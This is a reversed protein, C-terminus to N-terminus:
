QVPRVALVKLEMPNAKDNLTADIEVLTEPAVQPADPGGPVLVFKDKGAQFYRKGDQEQVRGRARIQFVAIPVEVRALIKRIEAPQFVADAKFSVMVAENPLSIVVDDVGAMKRLDAEAVAACTGCSIGPTRLASREVQAFAPLAAALMVASLLIRALLKM